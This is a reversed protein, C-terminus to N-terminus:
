LHASAPADNRVTIAERRKLWLLAGGPCSKRLVKLNRWGWNKIKLQLDSSARSATLALMPDDRFDVSDFGRISCM